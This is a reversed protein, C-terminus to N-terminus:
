AAMRVHAFSRFLAQMAPDCVQETLSDVLEAVTHGSAIGVRQASLPERGFDREAVEYSSLLVLARHRPDAKIRAYARRVREAEGELAQLFHYGDYLLLGTIGEAHNNRRSAGLIEDIAKAPLEPRATSMYTMQLM